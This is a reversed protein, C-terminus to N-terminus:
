STSTLAGRAATASRRRDLRGLRAPRPPPRPGGALARARELRELRCAMVVVAADDPTGLDRRTEARSAAPDATPTPAAVPCYLVALAAGAFVRPTSAANSQSNVLVLDPRVRSALREIWHGTGLPDHQWFVVPRGADRAVTAFLAHTWGGHCVVVDPRTEALAARLRRRAALTTWPRSFRAPSLRVVAAGAERLEAALRGEFCVAFRQELDPAGVGSRALTALLTEVGGYLNGAACHLLRM